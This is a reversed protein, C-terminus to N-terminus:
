EFSKYRKNRKQVRNEFYRTYHRFSKYTINILMKEEEKSMLVKGGMKRYYQSDDWNLARCMQIRIYVPLSKLRHIVDVSLLQGEDTAPFISELLSKLEEEPYWM